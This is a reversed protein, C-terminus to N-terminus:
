CYPACDPRPVVALAREEARLSRRDHTLTAVRRGPRVRDLGLRRELSIDADRIEGCNETTLQCSSLILWRTALWASVPAIMRNSGLDLDQIPLVTASSSRQAPRVIRVDFPTRYGCDSRKDWQVPERQWTRAEFSCEAIGPARAAASAERGCARGSSDVVDGTMHLRQRVPLTAPSM